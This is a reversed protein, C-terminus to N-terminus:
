SKVVPDIEDWEISERCHGWGTGLLYFLGDILYEAVCAIRNGQMAARGVRSSITEDPNPRASFGFVYSPGFILCHVFQDLSILLAIIWM